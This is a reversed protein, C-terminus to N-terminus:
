AESRKRRTAGPGASLAAEWFFGCANLLQSMVLLLAHALARPGDGRGFPYRVLDAYFRMPEVRLRKQRRTARIRHFHYAGRGYGLHQRLFGRLTLDHSHYVVADQAIVISHGRHTWRDCFERDEGAARPFAEDFGGMLDFSRASLAMNNSAIFPYSSEGYWGYLYSILQQSATSYTNARLGNVTLGGVMTEPSRALVRCLAALWTPGFTCDDDTFALYPGRARAAGANRAAAPGSRQQTVLKPDLSHRFPAVVGELATSGGDDVVIVEFRDPGFDLAALSRLCEALQRPRNRTPVIVSCLPKDAFPAEKTQTEVSETSRAM